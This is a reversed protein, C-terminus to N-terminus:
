QPSEAVPVTEAAVAPPMQDGPAAAARYPEPKVAEGPRSKMMGEVIVREGAALAGSVARTGDDQLAGVAIRRYDVTNDVKVVYVFKQGQDTGIAQQPVLLAKYPLGGPLRLRVFLGPGLLKDPNPFVGRFTITGTDPNLRNDAFDIIGEHPFGTEDALQMDLRNADEPEGAGSKRIQENLRQYKLLQREDIEAYAYVPDMTVITTLPEKLDPTVLNGPTISARGTLGDIPATITTFELNLGATDRAARAAAASAQAALMNASKADFDQASITNKARLEKARNFELEALQRDAEARSFEAQARDFDAQYPRPDIIFLVDGKKVEAGDKFKQAALYGSVRARVDVSQVAEARGTFVVFDQVEREVVPAVTVGPPPIEDPPSQRCGVSAVILCSLVFLRPFM